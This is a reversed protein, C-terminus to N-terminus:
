GRWGAARACCASVEAAAQPPPRRTSPIPTDWLITISSMYPYSKPWGTRCMRSYRATSSGSSSRRWAENVPVVTRALMPRVTGPAPRTGTISAASPM